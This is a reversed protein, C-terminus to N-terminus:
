GAYARNGNSRSRETQPDTSDQLHHIVLPERRQAVMGCLSVDALGVDHLWDRVGQSAGEAHLLRMRSCDDNLLYSYSQDYGLADGGSALIDQLIEDPDDSSLLGASARALLNLRQQRLREGTRDRLVKVFGDPQPQQMLPTMEGQAWFREGDKKLHWREDNGHGSELAREMEVQPRHGARDEPTFIRDVLEGLMEEESWGLVREAGKNWLTVRADSDTAIIAFDTASDIIQRNYRERAALARAGLVHKTTENTVCVVGRVVDTEDRFPTYSFTWWTNEPEGYRAMPVALDQFKTSTGAEAATFGPAVTPWADAWLKEFRSGLAHGLRPGLIPIYAENFFFTREPGWVLYMSDLSNLMLSLAIRLAPSWSSPHGVPSVAWDVKEFLSGLVGTSPLVTDSIPAAKM